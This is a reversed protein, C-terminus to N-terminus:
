KRELFEEALLAYLCADVIGQNNWDAKRMTGEYKLGCAEMVKGSGPNNPDHQAEIRGAKVQVFLFPIIGRFAESTYGQRWWKKGICYGIHLKAAEEDQEVVSISGIPEGLEKPVIAWLYFNDEGYHAIWKGVTQRSEEISSHPPWRLYKTVEPDSAWNEYMAREDGPEFRRLVLRETEIKVTGKHEM